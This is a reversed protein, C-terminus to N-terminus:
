VCCQSAPRLGLKPFSFRLFFRTFVSPHFLLPVQVIQMSKINTDGLRTNQSPSCPPVLPFFLVSLRVTNHGSPHQGWDLLVTLPSCFEHPSGATWNSLPPDHLFPFFFFFVHFNVAKQLAPLQVLYISLIKLFHPYFASLAFKSPFPPTV